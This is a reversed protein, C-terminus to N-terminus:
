DGLDASGAAVTDDSFVGPDFVGVAEGPLREESPVNCLGTTAAVSFFFFGTLSCLTQFSSLM